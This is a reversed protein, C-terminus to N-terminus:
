RTAAELLYLFSRYIQGTARTLGVECTRSSSYHADCPPALALEQAERLTASATLEPFLFGRDGAFGCCGASPPIVVREACACAIAELKPTLHLKIASCVPHVAVSPLKRKVDLKPLLQDHAFAIADVIRLRDFLAQNEPWLHPRATLLGYTCPSTDLVIPLRGGGSWAWFREITRNVVLRHAREFGKSSFPVGCCTGHVEAPIHIRIGARNALEVLAEPLSQPEADGSEHAISGMTRTICTPFYVAEAGDSRTQPLNARAPRPMHPGWQPTARRLVFRMAQTARAMAQAGILTELRHGLRLALRVLREGQHFHRAFFVAMGQALWSHHIKRLHKVLQGTDIGV